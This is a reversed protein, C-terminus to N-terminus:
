MNDGKPASINTPIQLNQVSKCRELRPYKALDQAPNIQATNKRSIIMIVIKEDKRSIIVIKEDNRAGIKILIEVLEGINKLIIM